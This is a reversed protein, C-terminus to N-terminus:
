NKKVNDEGERGEGEAPQPENIRKEPKVTKQQQNDASSPQDIPVDRNIDRTENEIGATHDINSNNGPDDPTEGINLSDPSSDGNQNTSDEIVIEPAPEKIKNYAISAYKSDPYKQNLITYSEIAKPIDDLKNEYIWAIAYHAKKGWIGATDEKAITVFINIANTYNGAFLESEGELYHDKFPNIQEEEEEENDRLGPDKEKNIFDAYKTGPYKALIIQEISDKKQTDDNIFTYIYNLAHYAKPTLSSDDYFKIFRDYAVEASDYNQMTLLFFEALKFINKKLSIEIDAKHRVKRQKNSTVRNFNIDLPKQLSDTIQANTSDENDSSLTFDNGLDSFDSTTQEQSEEPTNKNDQSQKEVDSQNQDTLLTSDNIDNNFAFASDPDSFFDIKSSDERSKISDLAMLAAIQSSDLKSVREYDYLDYAIDDKIDLYSNLIEARQTAEKKFEFQNFEKTARLYLKRASDMDAYYNEMIRALQYSAFSAGETRPFDSIVYQYQRTAANTDGQKEYCEGLKAQILGFKDRYRDARLMKQLSSTAENFKGTYIQATAKKYQSEFDINLPTEYKLVQSYHEIAFQYEGQEFYINGMFFQAEASIKDDNSVEVCRKLNTIANSYEEKKLYLEGLGYLAYAAIDRDAENDLIENFRELADDERKLHVLSRALWLKAEPLLESDSYRAIFQTLYRETKEYEQIYFHSKGILLLADDAYKNSDSYINILKWSKEIATEFDKKIDASVQGSKVKELKKTGSKYNQKANFFTNFYACGFGGTILFILLINKFYNYM